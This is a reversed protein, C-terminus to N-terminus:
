AAGGPSTARDLAIRALKDLTLPASTRSPKYENKSISVEGDVVAIIGTDGAEDGSWHLVGSSSVGIGKLWKTLWAMCEGYFYFKEEGDWVIADLSETPVWQLYSRPKDGPIEDADQAYELLQKAEAITLPRSLQIQGSFKTTYGM